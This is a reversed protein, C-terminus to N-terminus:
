QSKFGSLIGSKTMRLPLSSGQRRFATKRGSLMGNKMAQKIEKILKLDKEYNM